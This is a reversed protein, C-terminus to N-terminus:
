PGVLPAAFTFGVRSCPPACGTTGAINTIDTDVNELVEKSEAIKPKGDVVGDVVTIDYKWPVAKTSEFPFPTPMCVVVPSPHVVDRRHYTVEFPEPINFVPEIVSVEENIAPGSIQLVGQNMLNQIDNRAVKCGKPQIACEECSDHCADIVVRQWCM